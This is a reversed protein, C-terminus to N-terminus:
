WSPINYFTRLPNNPSNDDYYLPDWVQYKENEDKEASKDVLAGKKRKEFSGIDGSRMQHSLLSTSSPSPITSVFEKSHFQFLPVQYLPPKSLSVLDLAIGNDVM